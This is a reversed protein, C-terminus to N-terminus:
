TSPLVVFKEFIHLSQPLPLCLLWRSFNQRAMQRQSYFPLLAYLVDIFSTFTIKYLNKSVARNFIESLNRCFTDAFFKIFNFLRYLPTVGGGSSPDGWKKFDEMGGGGGGVGGVKGSFQDGWTKRILLIAVTFNLETFVIWTFCCCKWQSKWKLNVRFYM